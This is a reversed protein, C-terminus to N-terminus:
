VFVFLLVVYFGVFVGILIFDFVICWSGVVM